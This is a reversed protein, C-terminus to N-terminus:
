LNVRRCNDEFSHFFSIQGSVTPIYDLASHAWLIAHRLEFLHASFYSYIGIGDINLTDNRSQYTFRTQTAFRVFIRDNHAVFTNITFHSFQLLIFTKAM